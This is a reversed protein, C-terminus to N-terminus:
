GVCDGGSSEDSPCKVLSKQFGDSEPVRCNKETRVVKSMSEIQSINGTVRDAQSPPLCV